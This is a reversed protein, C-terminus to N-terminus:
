CQFNLDFMIINGSLHHCQFNMVPSLENDEDTTVKIEHFKDKSAPLNAYVADVYMAVDESLKLDVATHKLPSRSLTDAVIMSKGPIHQVIYNFRMLRIMLPQCRLPAEDIGKKNLIPVLPKHDPLLTFQELGNLYRYFKECTWTLALCEKEIQAYHQEAQSLTRSCFAVPRLGEDHVQFLVGGLGTSSADASVITQKKVDFHSRLFQSFTKLSHEHTSSKCNQCWILDTFLM